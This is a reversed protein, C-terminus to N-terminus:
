HKLNHGCSLCYPSQNVNETQCEPCVNMLSTSGQTPRINESKYGAPTKQSPPTQAAAKIRMGCKLCFNDSARNTAQCHPCTVSAGTKQTTVPGGSTHAPHPQWSAHGPHSPYPHESPESQSAPKQNSIISGQNAFSKEFDLVHWTPHTLAYMIAPFYLMGPAFLLDVGTSPFYSLWFLFEIGQIILLIGVLRHLLKWGSESKASIVYVAYTAISIAAMIRVLNLIYFSIGAFGLTPDNAILDLAYLGNMLFIYIRDSFYLIIPVILFFVSERAFVGAIILFILPIILAAVLHLFDMYVFTAMFQLVISLLIIAYVIPPHLTRSQLM